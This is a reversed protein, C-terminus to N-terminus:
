ANDPVVSRDILQAELDAIRSDLFRNNDRAAHLRENLRTKEDTLDQIQRKLTSRETILRQVGDEPLDAELDRIKGLLEGITNRQKIIERNLSTLQEEANLARERWSAASQKDRESQARAHRDTLEAIAETVAQRAAANQYLFTRSVNARRAVAAATIDMQERKMHRLADHVREVMAAAATRRAQVAAATRSPKDPKM